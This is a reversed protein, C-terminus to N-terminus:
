WEDQDEQLLLELLTNGVLASSAVDPHVSLGAGADAAAKIITSLFERLLRPHEVFLHIFQEPSEPSGVGFAQQGQMLQSQQVSEYEEFYQRLSTVQPPIPRYRGTCLAIILQTTEDPLSTLISKGYTPIYEMVASQDLRWIYQLAELMPEFGGSLGTGGLGNSLGLSVNMETSGQGASSGNRGRGHGHAGAAKTDKSTMEKHMDIVIRLFWAHQKASKALHLAHFPYMQRLVKIATKPDFSYQQNGSEQSDDQSQVFANLKAVAKLKTYCNLLLTTHLPHAQNQKSLGAADFSGSSTRDMAHLAELYDSLNHVRHADLFKCIVYSPSVHGVTNCYERTAGDYDGKTHLHDGHMRYIEAIHRADYDSNYALQIATAYLNKRFLIELKTRTDKESLQYVRHKSTVVMISASIEDDKAGRGRRPRSGLQGGLGGSGGNTTDIVFLVRETGSGFTGGGAASGGGEKRGQASQSSVAGLKMHFAVYSAGKHMDFISIATQGQPTVCAVLLYHEFYHVYQKREAGPIPFVRAKTEPTFFVVAEEQGVVLQQKGSSLTAQGQECGRVELAVQRPNLSIDEHTTFYSNIGSNQMVVYLSILDDGLQSVSFYLHSASSSSALQLSSTVYGTGQKKGTPYPEGRMLLVAGSRLGVALQTCDELVAFATIADPPWKAFVDVTHLLRPSIPDFEWIKITARMNSSEKEDPEEEDKEKGKGRARMAVAKTTQILDAPRPDIGDGVTVLITATGGNPYEVV